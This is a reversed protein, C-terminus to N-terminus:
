IGECPGDIRGALREVFTQGFWLPNHRCEVCRRLPLPLDQICGSEIDYGCLQYCDTLYFVVVTADGGRRGLCSSNHIGSTWCSSLFCFWLRPATGPVPYQASRNDTCQQYNCVPIGPRFDDLRRRGSIPPQAPEGYPSLFLSWGGTIRCGFLSM